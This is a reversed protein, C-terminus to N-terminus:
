FSKNSGNQQVFAFVRVKSEKWIFRVNKDSIIIEASACFNLLIMGNGKLHHLESMSLMKRDHNKSSNLQIWCVFVMKNVVGFAIICFSKLWCFINEYVFDYEAASIQHSFHSAWASHEGTDGHKDGQLVVSVMYAHSQNRLLMINMDANHRVPFLLSREMAANAIALHKSHKFLVYMYINIGNSYCFWNNDETNYKGSPQQALISELM